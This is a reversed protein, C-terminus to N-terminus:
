LGPIKINNKTNNSDGRSDSNKARFSNIHQTQVMNVEQSTRSKRSKNKISSAEELRKVLSTLEQVSEPFHLALQTIYEPLLNQKIYKIKTSECPM